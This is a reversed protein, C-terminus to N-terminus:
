CDPESESFHPIERKASGNFVKFPKSNESRRMQPTASTDTVAETLIDPNAAKPVSNQHM